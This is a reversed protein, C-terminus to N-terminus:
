QPCNQASVGIASCIATKQASTLSPWQDKMKDFVREQRFQKRYSPFANAMVQQLYQEITLATQPPIQAARRANEKDVVFQLADDQQTTTTFSYTGALAYSALLGAILWCTLAVVLLRQKNM